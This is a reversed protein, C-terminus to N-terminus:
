AAEVGMEVLVLDIDDSTPDDVALDELTEIIATWRRLNGQGYRDDAVRILNDSMRACLPSMARVADFLAQEKLPTFRRRMRIRSDLTPNDEIVPLARYGVLLMPFQPRTIGHIYRAEDLGRTRVNQVEDIILLGQWLSIAEVLEAEMETKTSGHPNMGTVATIAIRLLDNPAPNEPMVAIASPRGCHEAAYQAFTTKGTGPPGDIVGITNRDLVSQLGTSARRTSPTDVWPHDLELRGPLVLHSYDPVFRDARTERRGVESLAKM